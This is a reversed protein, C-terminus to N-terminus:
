LVYQKLYISPQTIVPCVCCAAISSWWWFVVVRWKKLSACLSCWQGGAQEPLPEGPHHVAWLEQRMRIWNEHRTYAEPNRARSSDLEQVRREMYKTQTEGTKQLAARTLCVRVRRARPGGRVQHEGGILDRLVLLNSDLNAQLMMIERGLETVEAVKDSMLEQEFLVAM